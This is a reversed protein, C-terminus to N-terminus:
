ATLETVVFKPTTGAVTIAGVFVVGSEQGVTGGLGDSDGSGGKLVDHFVTASATGGYNVFLPNTGVNQISWAGRATNAAIAVGASTVIAPTNASGVPAIIARTDAM